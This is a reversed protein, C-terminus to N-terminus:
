RGGYALPPGMRVTEDGAVSSGGLVKRRIKTRRTRFTASMFVVIGISDWVEGAGPVVSAGAARYAEDSFGSGEGGGQEFVVTHGDGVLSEVGAPVLAVRHEATKIERPVGVIM